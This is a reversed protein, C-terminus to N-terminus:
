AQGQKELLPQTGAVKDAAIATFFESDHHRFRGQSSCHTHQLIDQLAKGGDPERGTGVVDAAGEAAPDGHHAWAQVSMGKGGLGIRGQISGLV